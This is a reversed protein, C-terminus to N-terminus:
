RASWDFRRTETEANVTGLEDLAFMVESCRKLAIRAASVDASAIM